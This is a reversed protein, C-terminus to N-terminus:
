GGAVKEPWLKKFDDTVDYSDFPVLPTPYSGAILLSYLRYADALAQIADNLQKYKLRGIKRRDRSTHAVAKNVLRRVPRAIRHLAEIDRRVRSASLARATKSRTIKDFDRDAFRTPLNKDTYRKRFWSRTFLPANQGIGQEIDRLLVVLSLSDEPKPKVLMHGCNPCPKPKPPKAPEELMRRVGTAAFAIYGQKMWEALDASQYMGVYPATCDGLQKFIHQNVLLDSLQENLIRDLWRRWKGLLARSM